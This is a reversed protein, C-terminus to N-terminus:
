QMWVAVGAPAVERLGSIIKANTAAPIAQPKDTFNTAVWFGERRDGIFGPALSAAKVGADAYVRQLIARELEGGLSDVGVYTM